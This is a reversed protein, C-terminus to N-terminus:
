RTPFFPVDFLISRPAQRAQILCELYGRSWGERYARDTEFKTAEYRVPEDEPTVDRMDPGAVQAM